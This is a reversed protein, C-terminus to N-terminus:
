GGAASCHPTSPWGGRVSLQPASSWVTPAKSWVGGGGGGCCAGTCLTRKEIAHYQSLKQSSDLPSTSHIHGIAQVYYHM